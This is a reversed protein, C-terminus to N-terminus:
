DVPEGQLAVTGARGPVTGIRLRCRPAASYDGVWQDLRGVQVGEALAAELLSRLFGGYDRGEMEAHATYVNVDPQLQRVYWRCLRNEDHSIVGWTEDLTLLTTPIELTPLVEGNTVIYYPCRGRTDSRYLLGLSEECWLSTKTCQWGPAGFARVITGTASSVVDWARRLEASIEEHTLNPLRDQWRVHDYGHVALEHGAAVIERLLGACRRGVHPAPLVTGYLLTRWGYTKVARTRWMKELFGSRFVRRLARGSHDPGVAVFFSARINLRDFLRLLNPVGARMGAYTCVDVKLGLRM